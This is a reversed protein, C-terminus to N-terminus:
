GAVSIHSISADVPFIEGNARGARAGGPGMPPRWCAGARGWWRMDSARRAHRAQRLETAVHEIAPSTAMGGDSRSHGELVPQGEGHLSPEEKGPQKVAM